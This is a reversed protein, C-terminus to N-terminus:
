PAKGLKRPSTEFKKFDQAGEQYKYEGNEEVNQKEDEEVAEQIKRKREPAAADM